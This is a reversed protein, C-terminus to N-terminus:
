RLMRLAQLVQASAAQGNLDDVGLGQVADLRCGRPQLDPRYTAVVNGFPQLQLM